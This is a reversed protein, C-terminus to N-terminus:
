KSNQYYLQFIQTTQMHNGPSAQNELHARVCQMQAEHATLLCTALSRQM